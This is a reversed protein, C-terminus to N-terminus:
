SQRKVLKGGVAFTRRAHAAYREAGASIGHSKEWTSGWDTSTPLPDDWDAPYELFQYIAAVSSISLPRLSPEPPTNDISVWYTEISSSAALAEDDLSRGSNWDPLGYFFQPPLAKTLTEDPVPLALIDYLEDRVRESELTFARKYDEDTILKGLDKARCLARAARIWTVRSNKLDSLLSVVRNLEITARELLLQSSRRNQERHTRASDRTYTLIAMLVGAGIAVGPLLTLRAEIAEDYTHGLPWGTFVVICALVLVSLVLFGLTWILVGLVKSM